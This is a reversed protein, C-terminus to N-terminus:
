HREATERLLSGTVNRLKAISSFGERWRKLGVGPRGQDGWSKLLTLGQERPLHQVVLRHSVDRDGVEGWCPVEQTCSRQSSRAGVEAPKTLVEGCCEGQM